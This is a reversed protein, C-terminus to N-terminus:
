RFFVATGMSSVTLRVWNNVGDNYTSFHYQAGRTAPTVSLNAASGTLTTYRLIKYDGSAQPTWRNTTGVAHLNVLAGAQLNLNSAVLVQDFSAGGAAFELDLLSGASLTLNSATLTGVGDGPALHGGALNTVSGYLTAAGGFTAGSAITVPTLGLVGNVRLLGANVATAGTYTNNTSLLVWTGSGSKTIYTKNTGTSADALQPAFTNTGTNSGTLTVTHLSTNGWAVAGRNTFAVIGGGSADLAGGTTYFTMLRDSVSDSPGSYQLTADPSDAGLRLNGAASSATGLSSLNNVGGNTLKVVGLTGARIDTLGCYKSAPNSLIWRGSGKKQISGTWGGSSTGGYYDTICLGFRNSGTNSGTLTFAWASGSQWGIDASNTFSLTGLGSSDIGQSSAARCSFALNHDTTADADGTYQLVGGAFYLNQLASSAAGIGSAKGSNGINTVSVTGGFFATLNSYTNMGLLRLTGTGTKWVGLKNTNANPNGIAGDYTFTGGANSTDFGLLANNKFGGSATGIAKLLDIDAATFEDAGGVNLCLIAGNNNVTINAATWKATDGNYLSVRKAFQLVNPSFNGPFGSPSFDTSSSITTPGTYTNTGKLVAIGTGSGLTLGAGAPGAVPGGFIATVNGSMTVQRTASLTVGGAGFDLAGSVTFDGNWNMANGTTPSASGNITGGAITLANTGLARAHNLTLTGANLTLGGAVSNSAGLILAGAGWKALSYGGAGGDGIGGNVTLATANSWAQSAGLLLGANITHSGAENWIGYNASDATGAGLTLVNTGGSLTVAASSSGFHLGAIARNMTLSPQKTYSASNFFAVDTTTDNTPTLTSAWNNTNEFNTDSATDKWTQPAAVAVGVLGCLVLLVM